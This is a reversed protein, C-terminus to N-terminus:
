ATQPLECLELTGGNKLVPHDDLLKKVAEVSDSEFRMYGVISETTDTVDKNGLQIRKGIESGGQFMGSSGALEFFHEWDAAKTQTDTNGHIFLIYEM